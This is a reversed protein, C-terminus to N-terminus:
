LSMDHAPLILGCDRRCFGGSANEKHTADTTSRSSDHGRSSKDGRQRGKSDSRGHSSRHSSKSRSGNSRRHPARDAPKKVSLLPHTETLSVDDDCNKVNYMEIAIIKLHFKKVSM